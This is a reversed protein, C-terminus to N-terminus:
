RRSPRPPRPPMRSNAGPGCSTTPLTPYRRDILHALSSSALAIEPPTDVDFEVAIGQTEALRILATIQRNTMAIDGLLEAERKM